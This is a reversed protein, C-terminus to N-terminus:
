CHPDVSAAYIAFVPVLVTMTNHVGQGLGGVGAVVFLWRERCDQTWRLLCYVCTAACLINLAYVEPILAQSFMPISVSFLLGALMGRRATTTLEAAILGTMGAALAAFVASSFAVSWVVSGVPLWTFPHAALCWAPYGPPHPIGM